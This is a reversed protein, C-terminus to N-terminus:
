RSFKRSIQANKQGNNRTHELEKVLRETNKIRGATISSFASRSRCCPM